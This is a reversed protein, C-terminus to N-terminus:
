EAGKRSWPPVVGNTRAYAISQGLHEHMHNAMVFLVGQYTTQQGFMKVPKDLDSDPLSSVAQRAHAFSDKLTQVVKSKEVITKEMGPNLGAPPKVGIFNPFLYNAGAIHVYVESISRVGEAPRWTYKEEPMAEALGVIKTEVDKLQALFMDRFGPTKAPAPQAQLTLAAGSVTLALAILNAFQRM